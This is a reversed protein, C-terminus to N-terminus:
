ILGILLELDISKKLYLYLETFRLTMYNYCDCQLGEKALGELLVAPVEAHVGHGQDQRVGALHRHHGHVGSRCRGQRQGFPDPNKQSGGLFRLAQPMSRAQDATRPATTVGLRVRGTRLWSKEHSKMLLPTLPSYLQVSLSPFRASLGGSFAM